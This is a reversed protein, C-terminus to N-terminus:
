RSVWISRMPTEPTGSLSFPRGSRNQAGRSSALSNIEREDGESLSHRLLDSLRAMIRRASTSDIVTCDADATCSDRARWEFDESVIPIWRLGITDTREQHHCDCSRLMDEDLRRLEAHPKRSAVKSSIM